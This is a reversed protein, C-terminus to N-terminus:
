YLFDTVPYSCLFKKFNLPKRERERERERQREERERDGREKLKYM